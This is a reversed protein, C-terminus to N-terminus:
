TALGLDPWDAVMVAALESVSLRWGAPAEDWSFDGAALASAARPDTGVTILARADPVARAPWERPPRQFTAESTTGAQGGM